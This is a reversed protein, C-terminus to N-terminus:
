PNKASGKTVTHGLGPKDGDLEHDSGNGPDVIRGCKGGKGRGRDMCHTGGETVHWEAPWTRSNMTNNTVLGQV